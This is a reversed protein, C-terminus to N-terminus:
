KKRKVNKKDEQKERYKLSNLWLFGVVFLVIITGYGVWSLVLKINSQQSGFFGLIDQYHNFVNVCNVVIIGSEFLSEGKKLLTNEWRGMYDFKHKDFWFLVESVVLIIIGVIVFLEVSISYIEVLGFVLGVVLGFALGDVLVVALVVALAVGLAGDDFRSLINGILMKRECGKTLVM